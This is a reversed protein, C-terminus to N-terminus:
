RSAYGSHETDIGTDVSSNHARQNEPCRAPGADLHSACWDDSMYYLGSSACSALLPMAAILAASAIFSLATGKNNINTRM